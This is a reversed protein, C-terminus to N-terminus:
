FSNDFSQLATALNKNTEAQSPYGVEPDLGADELTEQWALDIDAFLSDEVLQPRSLRAQIEDRKQFTLERPDSTMIVGYPVIYFSHKSDDKM